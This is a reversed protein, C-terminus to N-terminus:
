PQRWTRLADGTGAALARNAADADRWTTIQMNVATAETDRARKGDILLEEVIGALLQVRAQRQRAGVLVAGSVKDLVATASQELSPDIVHAELADIARLVRRGNYRLAGTSHTAAIAVADALDLTALRATLADRAAVARAGLFPSAAIVSQTVRAYSAGTADGYNLAAHYDNAYLYAEFDHTRWRPVDVTAYKALNTHASLRRAMRRVKRHQERQTDLLVEKLAATISNRLTVARDHVAIQAAAPLSGLVVVTVGIIVLRM